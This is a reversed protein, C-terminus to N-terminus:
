FVLVALLIGFLIGLSQCVKKKEPLEIKLVRISEELEKEYLELQRMQMKLDLYGLHEGLSFLQEQEEKHLGLEKFYIEANKRFIMGFTEGRRIEMERATERLFTRYVGPLKEAAGTMADFLSANGCRIEGKLLIVMRLLMEKAELRASLERSKALGLGAGSIMILILGYIRLM